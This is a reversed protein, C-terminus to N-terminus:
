SHVLKFDPLQVKEAAYMIRIIASNAATDKGVTQFFPIMPRAELSSAKGALDVIRLVNRIRIFPTEPIKTLLVRLIEVSESVQLEQIRQFAPALIWQLQQVRDAYKKWEEQPTCVQREM